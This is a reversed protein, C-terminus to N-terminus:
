AGIGSEMRVSGIFPLPRVDEQDEMISRVIAQRARVDRVLADVLPEFRTQRQPVTRFDQGRDGKRPPASMYFAILPRHYVRAMKLLLIRPVPAKGQEIALLRNDASQGRAAKIGLKRAA